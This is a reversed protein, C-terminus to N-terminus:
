PHHSWAVARSPLNVADNENLSFDQLAVTGAYPADSQGEYKGWYSANVRAHSVGDERALRLLLIAFMIPALVIAVCILLPTFM